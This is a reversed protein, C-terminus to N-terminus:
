RCGYGPRLADSRACPSPWLTCCASVLAFLRRGPQSRRCRGRPMRPLQEGLMLFIMGNLTTQCHVM